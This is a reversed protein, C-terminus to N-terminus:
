SGGSWSQLQSPSGRFSLQKQSGYSKGCRLREGLSMVDALEGFLVQIRVWAVTGGTFMLMDDPATSRSVEFRLKVTSGASPLTQEDEPPIVLCDGKAAQSVRPYSGDPLSFEMRDRKSKEICHITGKYERQPIFEGDGRPPPIQPFPTLGLLWRSEEEMKEFRAFSETPPYLTDDKNPNLAERLVRYSKKLDKTVGWHVLMALSYSTELRVLNTPPLHKIANSYASNYNVQAKGWHRQSRMSPTDDGSHAGMETGDGFHARINREAPLSGVQFFRVRFFEAIDTWSSWMMLHFDAVRLLVRLTFTPNSLPLSSFRVM